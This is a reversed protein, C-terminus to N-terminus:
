FLKEIAMLDDRGRLGTHRRARVRAGVEIDRSGDAIAVCHFYFREGEESRISGDGRRGDFTEVVGFVNV